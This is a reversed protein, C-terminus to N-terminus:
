CHFSNLLQPKFILNAYRSSFDDASFWYRKSQSRKREFHVSDSRALLRYIYKLPIQEFLLVMWCSPCLTWGSRINDKGSRVQKGCGALPIRLYNSIAAVHLNEFRAESNAAIQRHWRM